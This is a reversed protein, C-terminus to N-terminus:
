CSFSLRRHRRYQSNTGVPKEEIRSITALRRVDVDFTVVADGLEPEFRNAEVALTPEGPALNALHLLKDLILLGRQQPAPILVEASSIWAALARWTVSLSSVRVTSRTSPRVTATGMTHYGLSRWPVGSSFSWQRRMPPPSPIWQGSSSSSMLTSFM